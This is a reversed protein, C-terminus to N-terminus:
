EQNLMPKSIPRPAHSREHSLLKAKLEPGWRYQGSTGSTAVVRHCPIFLAIRNSACATGTARYSKPRGIKTAIEGYSATAAFAIKAIEKWVAGQFGTGDQDLNLAASLTAPQGSFYAELYEGVSGAVERHCDHDVVQAGKVMQALRDLDRTFGSALIHETDSSFLVGFPGLPTDYIKASAIQAIPREM